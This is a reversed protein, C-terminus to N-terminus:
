KQFVRHFFSVDVQFYGHTEQVNQGSERFNKGLVKKGDFRILKWGMQSRFGRTTPFHGFSTSAWSEFPVSGTKTPWPLCRNKQQFNHHESELFFIGEPKSRTHLFATWRQSLRLFIPSFHLFLFTFCLLFSSM